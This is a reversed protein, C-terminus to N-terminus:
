ESPPAGPVTQAVVEVTPGRGALSTAFERLQRETGGIAPAFQFVVFSIRV